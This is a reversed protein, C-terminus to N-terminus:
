LVNSKLSLSILYFLCICGIQNFLFHSPEECPGSWTPCRPSLRRPLTQEGAHSVPCVGGMGGAVPAPSLVLSCTGGRWVLPFQPGSLSVHRGVCVRSTPPLALSPAWAM